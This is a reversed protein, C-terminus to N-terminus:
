RAAGPRELEEVRRRLDGVEGELRVIQRAADQLFYMYYLNIQAQRSLVHDTYLRVFPRVLKKCLLVLRGPLGRTQTRLAYDASINWCHIPHLLQDLLQPHIQSEEGYSRLRQNLLRELEETTRLGQRRRREIGERIEVMIAAVDVPASDAGTPESMRVEM